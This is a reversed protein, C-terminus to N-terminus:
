RNMIAWKEAGVFSAYAAIAQELAATRQRTPRLTPEWWVRVTLEQKQRSLQPDVRAVLRDGALVPLIYYGYQRRAAPTFAEFRYDFAFLHLARTRDRVLPDFPSLLRMAGPDEASRINALRQQWAAIAFARLPKGAAKKRSGSPPAPEVQVPVIRGQRAAADCWRRVDHLPVANWFGALQRPTAIGLREIATACAWELHAAEDPAPMTHAEPFVRSTIDYVKHFNIRRTIALEGIRWLHELAAKQPKWAWWNGSIGSGAEFDRAMLPGDEQVRALVQAIIRQSDPGLREQMWASASRYRQFRPRWHGFWHVPILSADHTWHEFIRREQYLAELMHPRYGPWRLWLIHHHAREVVNISDLQVYGLHEIIDYVAPTGGAARPALGLGIMLLARADAATVRTLEV